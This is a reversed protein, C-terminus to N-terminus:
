LTFSQLMKLGKEHWTQVGEKEVFTITYMEKNKIVFWQTFLMPMTYNQITGQYVLEFFDTGSQKFSRQSILHFESFNEQIAAVVETSHAAIDAVKTQDNMPQHAININEAFDDNEALPSTFFVRDGAQIEKKWSNPYIIKYVPTPHAYQIYISADQAFVSSALFTLLVGIYLRFM